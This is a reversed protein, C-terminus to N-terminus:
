AASRSRVSNIQARRLAAAARRTSLQTESVARYYGDADKELVQGSADTVWHCFEDGHLRIRITTGDPQTYSLLGRYAPVANAALCLCMLAYISVLLKKM